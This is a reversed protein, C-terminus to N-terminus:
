LGTLLTVEPSKVLDFGVCTSYLVFCANCLICVYFMYIYDLNTGETSSKYFSAFLTLLHQYWQGNQDQRKLVLNFFIYFLISFFLRLNFISFLALAM